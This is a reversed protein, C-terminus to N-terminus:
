GNILKAVERLHNIDASGIVISQSPFSRLIERVVHYASDGNERFIGNFIVQGKFNMVMPSNRLSSPVELIDAWSFDLNLEKDISAGILKINGLSKETQLVEIFPELTLSSDISHLLFADHNVKNLRLLSSFVEQQLTNPTFGTFWGPNEVSIYRGFKGLKNALRNRNKGFDVYPLGAKTIVELELENLVFCGINKDVMANHYFPSTDIFDYGLEQAQICFELLKKPQALMSSLNGGGIGIRM